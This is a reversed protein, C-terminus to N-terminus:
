KLKILEHFGEITGEEVLGIVTEIVSELGGGEDWDLGSM